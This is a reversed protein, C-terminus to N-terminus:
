CELLLCFASSLMEIASNQATRGVEHRMDLALNAMIASIQLGHSSPIDGGHSKKQSFKDNPHKFQNSPHVNNALMNCNNVKLFVNNLKTALAINTTIEEFLM